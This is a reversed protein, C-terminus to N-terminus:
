PEATSPRDDPNAVRLFRRSYDQDDRFSRVSVGSGDENLPNWLATPELRQDVIRPYSYRNYDIPTENPTKEGGTDAGSYSTDIRPVSRRGSPRGLLGMQSLKSHHRQPTGGGTTSALTQTENSPKRRRMYLWIAAAAMLVIIIGVGAFLGAVKGRHSMFGGDISPQASATEAPPATPTITLTKVEGTVTMVSTIPTPTWTSTASPTTDTPSTTTTSSHTSHTIPTDPASPTIPISVHKTTPKALTALITTTDPTTSPTVSILSIKVPPSHTVTELVTVPKLTSPSNQISLTLISTLSSM